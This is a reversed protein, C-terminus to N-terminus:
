VTHDALKEIVDGIQEATPIEIEQEEVKPPSIVTAVNRALVESEVARQLARHLVHHAHNVTRVSVARGDKGGSKMLTSHWDQVRKQKLRQLKENGLHPIIQL